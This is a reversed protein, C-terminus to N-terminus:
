SILIDSDKSYTGKERNYCECVCVCRPVCVCVGCWCLHELRTSRDLGDRHDKAGLSTGRKKKESHIVIPDSSM